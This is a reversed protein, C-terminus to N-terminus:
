QEIVTAKKIRIENVPVDEKGTRAKEIIGVTKMGEVVEGFVTYQGDLWPAGGHIQYAKRQEQSFTPPPCNAVETQAVELVSDMLDSVGDRDRNRRMTDLRKEYSKILEKYLSDVKMDYNASEYGSLDSTSVHKGTVIYFQYKDSRREPNEDDGERAAAVMGRKHFHRPYVIEAPITEAAKTTDKVEGPRTDPDGTQIMFSRIVRHFTVGDYKGDKVNNIFNDRHGPTDNYLKLRIDGATTEFLVETEEMGTQGSCSTAAMCCLLLAAAGAFNRIMTTKTNPFDKTKHGGPAQRAAHPANAPM